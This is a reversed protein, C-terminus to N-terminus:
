QPLLKAIYMYRVITNYLKFKYLTIHLNYRLLVSSTLFFNLYMARVFFFFDTFAVWALVNAERCFQPNLILVAVGTCPFHRYSLHFSSM